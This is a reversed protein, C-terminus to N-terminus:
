FPPMVFGSEPSVDLAIAQTGGFPWLMYSTAGPTELSFLVSGRQTYGLAPGYSQSTLAFSEFAGTGVNVKSMIEASSDTDVTVYTIWGDRRLAPRVFDTDVPVSSVLSPADFDVLSDVRYLEHVRGNASARRVDFLVGQPAVILMELDKIGDLLLEMGGEGIDVSYLGERDQGDYILVRDESPSWVVRDPELSGYEIFPPYQEGSSMSLNEVELTDIVTPMRVEFVDAQDMGLHIYDSAGALFTLRDPRFFGVQGIEDLYDHFYLPRTVQESDRAGFAPGRGMHLENSADGQDVFACLLGDDSIAMYPGARFDPLFGGGFYRRAQVSVREAVGQPGFAWAHLHDSDEGALTMAWEGNRSFVVDGQYHAQDQDILIATTQRLSSVHLDRTFRLVGRGAVVVGWERQLGLGFRQITLPGYRLTRDIVSGDALSVEYANGGAERRTAVLISDGEPSVSILPLYPDVGGSRLSQAREALTHPNGDRDIHLFGYVKGAEDERSFKYLAGWSNPLVLRSASPVDTLYRPVGDAFEMLQTRGVFDIPLIRLGRLNAPTSLPVGTAEDFLSLDGHNLDTRVFISVTGPDSGLVPQTQAQVTGLLPAVLAALTLTFSKM